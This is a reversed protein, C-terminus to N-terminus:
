KRALLDRIREQSSSKHTLGQTQRKVPKSLQDSRVMYIEMYSVKVVYELIPPSQMITDFIQQTIRPILGRLRADDISAGQSTSM